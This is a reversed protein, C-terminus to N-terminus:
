SPLSTPRSPPTAGPMHTKIWEHLEEIHDLAIRLLNKTNRNESELVNVRATLSEVQSRLPAVLVVATDAIIRAAEADIQTSESEAKEAAAKSQRRGFWGQVVAGAVGSGLVTGM